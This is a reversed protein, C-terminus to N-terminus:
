IVLGHSNSLNKRGSREREGARINQRSQQLVSGKQGGHPSRERPHLKSNSTNARSTGPRRNSRVSPGNSDAPAPPLQQPLFHETMKSNYLMQGKTDMLPNARWILLGM